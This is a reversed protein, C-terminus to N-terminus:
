NPDSPAAMDCAGTEEPIGSAAEGVKSQGEGPHTGQVTEKQVRFAEVQAALQDYATTFKEEDAQLSHRRAAIDSLQSDIDAKQESAQQALDKRGTDLAQRAQGDLEAQQQRLTSTQRDLGERFRAMQKINFWLRNLRARQLQYPIATMGANDMEESIGSWVEGVRRQAEAAAYTAKVAEQRARFTEVRVKLRECAATLQEEEARLSDDRAALTSLESDVKAQRRLAKLRVREDKASSALTAQDELEQRLPRMQLKLRARSWSVDAVARQVNTLLELHRQYSYELTERPDATQDPAKDAKAKLGLWVKKAISMPPVQGEVAGGSAGARCM